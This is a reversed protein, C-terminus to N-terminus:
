AEEFDSRDIVYCPPTICGEEKFEEFGAEWAEDATEGYGSIIVTFDHRYKKKDSM